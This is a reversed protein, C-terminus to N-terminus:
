RKDAAAAVLARVIIAAYWMAAINGITVACTIVVSVIVGFM